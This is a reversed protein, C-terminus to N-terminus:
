SRRVCPPPLTSAGGTPPPPMFFFSYPPAEKGRHPCKEIHASHTYMREMHPGNKRHPPYDPYVLM